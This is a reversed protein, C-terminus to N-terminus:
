FSHLGLGNVPWKNKARLSYIVFLVAMETEIFNLIKVVTKDERALISAETGNLDTRTPAM